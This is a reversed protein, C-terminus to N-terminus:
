SFNLWASLTIVAAVIASLVRFTVVFVGGARFFLCSLDSAIGRALRLVADEDTEFYSNVKLSRSMRVYQRSQFQVKAQTSM